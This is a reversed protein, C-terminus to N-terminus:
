LMITFYQRKVIMYCKQRNFRGLLVNIAKEIIVFHLTVKKLLLLEENMKVTNAFIRPKNETNIKFNENNIFSKIDTGLLEKKTDIYIQSFNYVNKLNDEM